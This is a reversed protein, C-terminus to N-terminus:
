ALAIATQITADSYPNIGNEQQIIAAILAPLSQTMDLVAMPDVNLSSAVNAIYAQQDTASWRSIMDQVTQYGESYYNNLIRAIARIGSEANVFQVFTGDTQNIAAGQWPTPPNTIKINGPNNNRLGRTATYVVAGGGFLLLAGILWVFKSDTAV